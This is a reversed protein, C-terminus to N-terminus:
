YIEELAKILKEGVVKHSLNEIVWDRCSGCLAPSIGYKGMKFIDVIAKKLEKTSRAPIIIAPSEGYIDPIAGADSTIVPVGCAMAEAINYEFQPKWDPTDYPYTVMMRAQRLEHPVQEYTLGTIIKFKLNTHELAKNIYDIGKEKVARGLYVIDFREKQENKSIVTPSFLTTDISGQPLVVTKKAVSKVIDQAEHNGCVILDADTALYSEISVAPSIYRINEWVFYVLKCDVVRSIRYARQAQKSWLEQMCYLIDPKFEKIATVADRYFTFEGLNGEKHVEFGGGRKLNGWKRPYIQQIEIGELTNLYDFFRYQRAHILSHGLVTIKIM